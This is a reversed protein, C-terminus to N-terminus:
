FPEVSILTHDDSNKELWRLQDYLEKLPLVQRFETWKEPARASRHKYRITYLM